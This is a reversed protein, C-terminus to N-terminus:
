LLIQCSLLPVKGNLCKLYKLDGDLLAVTCHFDKCFYGRVL